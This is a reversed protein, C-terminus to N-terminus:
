FTKTPSSPPLLQPLSPTPLPPPPRAKQSELLSPPGFSTSAWPLWQVPACWCNVTQKLVRYSAYAHAENLFFFRPFCRYAGGDGRDLSCYCVSLSLPPTRTQFLPTLRRGALAADIGDIEPMAVAAPSMYILSTVDRTFNRGKRPGACIRPRGRRPAALFLQPTCLARANLM